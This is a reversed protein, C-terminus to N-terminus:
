PHRMRVGAVTVTVCLVITFLICLTVLPFGGANCGYGNEYMARAVQPDYAPKGCEENVTNHLHVTWDFLYYKGKSLPVTIPADRLHKSMNDRCKKCPLVRQLSEFFTRYDVQDQHAPKTPYALAIYHITSWACAGWYSPRVGRKEALQM